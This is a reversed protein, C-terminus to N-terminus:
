ELLEFSNYIAESYCLNFSCSTVKLVDKKKGALDDALMNRM